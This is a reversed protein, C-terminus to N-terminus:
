RTGRDTSGWGAEALKAAYRKAAQSRLASRRWGVNYRVYYNTEHGFKQRLEALLISAAEINQSSDLATDINLKLHAFNRRSIQMLGYDHTRKNVALHDGGSETIAIAQLLNVPLNHKRAASKLESDFQQLEQSFEWAELPGQVGFPRASKAELAGAILM